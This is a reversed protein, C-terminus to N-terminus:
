LYNQLAAFIGTPATSASIVVSGSLETVVAFIAEVATVSAFSALSATVEAFITCIYYSGFVNM